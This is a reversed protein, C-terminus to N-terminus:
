AGFGFALVLGVGVMFGLGHVGFAVRVYHVM